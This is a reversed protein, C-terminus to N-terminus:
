ENAIAQVFSSSVVLYALVGLGPRDFFSFCGDDSAKSHYANSADQGGPALDYRNSRREAQGCCNACKWSAAVM